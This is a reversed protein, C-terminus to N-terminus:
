DFWRVDRFWVAPEMKRIFAEYPTEAYHLKLSMHAREENYWKLFEQISEFKFRKKGYTQYWREIKGNTQPHKVRGVIHKIGHKELFEQFESKARGKKDQKVPCFESGRDTLIAKIGGYPKAFLIAKMLTKITNASNQKDYEDCALITRTADDLYAIVHKKPETKTEYWDTHVLELSHEREYRVWKRRKQKKPEDRAYGAAKLVMHIINHPIHKKHKANITKELMVAGSNRPHESLILKIDELPIPKRPRGPMRFVIRGTDRQEKILQQIRRQSVRQIDALERTPKGRNFWRIIWRIKKETLKRMLRIQDLYAFYNHSLVSIVVGYNIILKEFGM